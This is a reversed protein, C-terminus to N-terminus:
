WEINANKFIVKYYLMYSFDASTYAYTCTTNKSILDVFALNYRYICPHRKDVPVLETEAHVRGGAHTGALNASPSDLTRGYSLLLMCAHTSRARIAPDHYSVVCLGRSWAKSAAGGLRLASSPFNAFDTM